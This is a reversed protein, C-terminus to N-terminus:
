CRLSAAGMGAVGRVSVCAASSSSGYTAERLAGEGGDGGGGGEGERVAWDGGAHVARVDFLVVDGAHIHVPTVKSGVPPPGAVAPGPVLHSGQVCRRVPPDWSTLLSFLAYIYM